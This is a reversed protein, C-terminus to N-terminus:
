QALTPAPDRGSFGGITIVAEGTALIISSSSQSGVTAVLYTASGQNKELYSVPAASVETVAGPVGGGGPGGNGLAGRATTTSSPGATVVSGSVPNRVTTLSYALPGALLTVTAVAAAVMVVARRRLM